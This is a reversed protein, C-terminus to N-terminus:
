DDWGLRRSRGRIYILEDDDLKIQQATAAQDNIQM